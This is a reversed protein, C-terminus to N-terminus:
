ESSTESDVELLDQFLNLIVSFLSSFEGRDSLPTSTNPSVCLPSSEFYKQEDNKKVLLKPVIIKAQKTAQVIYVRMKYRKKNSAILVAFAWIIFSSPM